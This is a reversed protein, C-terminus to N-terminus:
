SFLYSIVATTGAAIGAGELARKGAEKAKMQGQDSGAGYLVLGLVGGIAAADVAETFPGFGVLKEVVVDVDSELGPDSMGSSKVGEMDEAIEITAVVSIDPYKEFHELIYHNSETAKLQLEEMIEGSELDRIVVDSGPQNTKPHLEAIFEPNDHNFQEVYRLEHYIGKVNNALGKLQAADLNGVYSGLEHLDADALSNKSRRLADIVLEEEVTTFTFEQRWLKWLVTTVIVM